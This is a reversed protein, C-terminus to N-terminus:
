MKELKQKGKRLLKFSLRNVYEKNNVLLAYSYLIPLTRLLMYSSIAFMGICFPYYTVLDNSVLDQREFLFPMGGAALLCSGVIVVVAYKRKTHAYKLSLEKLYSKEILM